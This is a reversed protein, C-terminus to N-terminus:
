QLLRRIAVVFAAEKLPIKMQEAVKIVAAVSKVMYTELKENVVEETWHEHARNQVWIGQERSCM